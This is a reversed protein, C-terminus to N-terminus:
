VACLLKTGTLCLPEGGGCESKYLVTANRALSACSPVNCIPGSGLWVIKSYPLLSTSCLAASRGGVCVLHSDCALPAVFVLGRPDDECVIPPSDCLPANGVVIIKSEGQCTGDTGCYDSGCTANISCPSRIPAGGCQFSRCSGSQCQADTGCPATLPHPWDTLCIKRDPHCDRYICDSNSACSDGAEGPPSSCLGCSLPCLRAVTENKQCLGRRSWNPCNPTDYIGPTPARYSANDNCAMRNLRRAQEVNDTEEFWDVMLLNVRYRSANVSIFEDFHANASRALDHLSRFKPFLQAVTDIVRRASTTLVWQLKYVHTPYGTLNVLSNMEVDVMDVFNDVNAWRQDLLHQTSWFDQNLLVYAEADYFAVIRRHSSIMTSYSQWGWPRFWLWKGLYKRILNILMHHEPDKMGNFAGFELVLLETPQEEMFRAIDSLMNATYDGM